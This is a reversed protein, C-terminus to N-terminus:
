QQLQAYGMRPIPTRHAQSSGHPALAPATPASGEHPEPMRKSYDRLPRYNSLTRELRSSAESPTVNLRQALFKLFEM